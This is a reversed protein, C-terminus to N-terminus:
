ERPAGEEEDKRSVALADAAGRPNRLLAAFVNRLKASDVALLMWPTGSRNRSLKGEKSPRMIM